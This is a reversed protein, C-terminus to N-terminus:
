RIASLIDRLLSNFDMAHDPKPSYGLIVVAMQQDPLIFIRQGDHGKCYYMSAPANPFENNMNLWFSSGYAGESGSVPTTTYKVWGDPLIREGNFVGDQLYM